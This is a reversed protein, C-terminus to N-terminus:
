PKFREFTKGNFKYVGTEHTGLWLDGNNDKYISYVTIDKSGDKVPYHIINKGDYHWVGDMYTAIWLENNNDKAISLYENLKTDNKGDLSGISKARSYFTPKDTSNKLPTKNGYINYRYMTNFWFYGDKDEIISRVGNAPGDHLETVDEESIWDLSKGNYRCVGLPNTGLWVYGKSDKYVSYVAYPNAYNPHAPLLLKYLFKGDYRYVFNSDWAQKFWLDNPELKWENDSNVVSLTTFSQGDFKSIGKSTNFYINGSKDEKIEEIRNHPLGSKTTFHLMTKGDYRFLGDKWSGFWYNNKKDQYVVMLNNGLEKVTDGVTIITLRDATHSNNQGSCSTFVTLISLFLLTNLKM